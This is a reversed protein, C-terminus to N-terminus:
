LAVEIKQTMATNMAKESAFLVNETYLGQAIDPIESIDGEIADLFASMEKEFWGDFPKQPEIDYPKVQGTYGGGANKEWFTVSGSDRMSVQLMGGQGAILLMVDDMGLRSVTFSALGNEGSAVFVAADDNEVKHMKGDTGIREPIFIGTQCAVQHYRQGAVYYAMDVLHSGFDGLAGSGSKERIMRWEMPNQPNSLRKGGSWSTLTYVSGIQEQVIKRAMRIPNAYRYVMAVMGVQNVSKATRALAECESLKVAMPKEVLLHKGARLAQDAYVFHFSNPTCIDVADVLDLLEEYSGCIKANLGHEAGWRRAAEQDIDYVATVQCRSDKKYGEVHYHAISVTAGTGVLGIKIM